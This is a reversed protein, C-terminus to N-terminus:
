KFFLDEVKTLIPIIILVCSGELGGGHVHNLNFGNFSFCDTFSPQFQLHLLNSTGLQKIYIAHCPM